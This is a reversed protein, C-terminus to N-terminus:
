TNLQAKEDEEVKVKKSEDKLEGEAKRKGEDNGEAVASAMKIADAVSGNADGQKVNKARSAPGWNPLPNEQYYVVKEEKDFKALDRHHSFDIEHSSIDSIM